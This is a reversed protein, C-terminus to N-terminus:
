SEIRGDCSGFWPADNEVNCDMLPWQQKVQIKQRLLFLRDLCAYTVRILIEM